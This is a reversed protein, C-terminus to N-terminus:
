LPPTPATELFRFHDLNIGFCDDFVTAILAIRIEEGAYDSLDVWYTTMDLVELDDVGNETIFLPDLLDDDTSLVRFALNQDESFETESSYAMDWALIPAATPVTVTQEISHVGADFQLWVASRTGDTAQVLGSPVNMCVDGLDMEQGSHHDYATEEDFIDTGATEVLYVQSNGNEVITWGSYDGTEFSGNVLPPPEEGGSGGMGGEGAAGASGNAGTGGTNPANGGTNAGTGGTGGSPDGGQGGSGGGSGSGDGCSTALALGLIGACGFLSWRGNQM